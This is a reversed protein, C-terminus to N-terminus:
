RYLSGVQKEYGNLYPTRVREGTDVVRHTAQSWRPHPVDPEVNSEFPYEEASLTEWLTKPQRDVCEISVISKISKYGYKWPVVLRIPAGNQKPLPKGYIGTVVMTLDHMAEAMTLGETYPWPYGALRSIGPMEDPRLATVFKVFKASKQPQIKKLLKRLPFGTWPVTMGWAEVCRFRYVREELGFERAWDEPDAKEPEACLGGASVEWPKITFPGVLDAVKTKQTTFEYFNNYSTAVVENSLRWPPSYNGNRKAPFLSNKTGSKAELSQAMLASAGLFGMEKLFKRRDRYANEPTVESDPIYWDPRNIINAM